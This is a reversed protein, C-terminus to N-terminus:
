KSYEFFSFCKLPQLHNTGKLRVRNYLAPLIYCLPRLSFLDMMEVYIAFFYSTLFDFLVSTQLSIRAYDFTLPFAISLVLVYTVLKIYKLTLVRPSLLASDTNSTNTKLIIFM